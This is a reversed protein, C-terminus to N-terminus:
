VNTVKKLLEFYINEIQRTISDAKYKQIATEKANKSITNYLKEDSLLKIIRDAIQEVDRKPVVFGTKGNEIIDMPGRSDTTVVPLGHALAEMLVLPYADWDSPLVFLKASQYAQQKEMGYLPGVWTFYNAVNLQKGLDIVEKLMGGDPGVLILHVDDIFQIVKPLSKILLDPRKFSNLIGMFLIIKKNQLNYKTIFSEYKVPLFCDNEAANPIVIVKEEPVGINYYRKAEYNNLAIIKDSNKFVSKLALKDYLSYVKSKLNSIEGEEFFPGHGHLISVSKKRKGFFAAIECHPHRYNHFHLVDYKNKILHSIIGPMFSMHGLNLLSKYRFVQVGNLIEKHPRDLKPRNNHDRNSTLVNVQHGLKVLEESLYQVVGQVGGISPYYYPTIQAIKLKM